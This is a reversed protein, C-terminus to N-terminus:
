DAIAYATIHDILFDIFVKGQPHAGGLPRSSPPDIQVAYPDQLSGPNCTALNVRVLVPNTFDPSANASKPEIRIEAKSGGSPGPLVKYVATPPAAGPFFQVFHGGPIAQNAGGDAGIVVDTSDVKFNNCGILNQAIPGGPQPGPSPSSGGCAAVLTAATLAGLVAAFTARPM